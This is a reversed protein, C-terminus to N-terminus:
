KKKLIKTDGSVTFLTDDLGQNIEVSDLFIEFATAGDRQRLMTYPWQVGDGVDRYKSYFTLDEFRDPGERRVALQRIPLKTTQHFWVRIVRNESDTIDVLEAPQNDVVDSGKSELILGPEGLRMRLIYFVNRLQGEQFRQVDEDPIPRAGRYTIDWGKLDELFVVASEEKKGLAQRLRLGFFGPVPPEPRVLYRTYITTRSLGSLRERHFSYARGREIRDNMALYRDGGVAALAEKVVREGRAAFTEAFASLAVLGTFLARLMM